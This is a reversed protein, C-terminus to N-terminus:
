NDIIKKPLGGNSNDSLLRSLSMENNITKLYDNYFKNDLSKMHKKLHRKNHIDERRSLFFRKLKLTNEKLNNKKHISNNRGTLAIIEKWNKMKKKSYNQCTFNQKIFSNNSHKSDNISTQTYLKNTNRQNLPYIYLQKKKMLAFETNQKKIPIEKAKRIISEPIKNPKPIKQIKQIIKQELQKLNTIFTRIDLKNLNLNIKGNCFINNLNNIFNQMNIIINDKSANMITLNEIEKEASLLKYQFTSSYKDGIKVSLNLKNRLLSNEYELTQISSYLKNNSTNNQPSINKSSPTNKKISKDMQSILSNKNLILNNIKNQLNLIQKNKRALESKYLSINNLKDFENITKKLSM